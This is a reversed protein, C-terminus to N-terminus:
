KFLISPTLSLFTIKIKDKNFIYHESVKYIYKLFLRVLNSLLCDGWHVWSHMGVKEGDTCWLGHAPAFFDAQLLSGYWPPFTPDSGAVWSYLLFEPKLTVLLGSHPPCPYLRSIEIIALLYSPLELFSPSLSLLAWSKLASSSLILLPNGFHFPYFIVTNLFDLFQPTPINYFTFWSIYISFRWPLPIHPNSLLPHSSSVPCKRTLTSFCGSTQYFCLASTELGSPSACLYLPFPRSFGILGWSFLWFVTFKYM